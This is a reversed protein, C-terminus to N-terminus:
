ALPQLQLQPCVPAPGRTMTIAKFRNPAPRTLCKGLYLNTWAYFTTCAAEVCVGPDVRGGFEWAGAFLAAFGAVCGM